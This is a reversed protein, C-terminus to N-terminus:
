VAQESGTTTAEEIFEDAEADDMSDIPNEGVDLEPVIHGPGFLVAKEDDAMNTEKAAREEATGIYHEDRKFGAIRKHIAALVYAGHLVGTWELFLCFRLLIYTLPNSLFPIPFASAILRWSISGVIAVIVAGLFGTDFLGQLGDSVGFINEEGEEVEISTIRAIFFMCSVVCLQRGIMFAALNHNNNKFLLECTKKAFYSDGRESAQLKSVAFYAIQSGELLGVVCLLVFFIITSAAPPVSDWIASKGTFLATLTVAFSFGLIAISMVCRFYFFINAVLKRPPENSEIPKGALRAAIRQIVYCTHLLGTFEIGL